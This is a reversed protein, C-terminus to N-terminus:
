SLSAPLKLLPRPWFKKTPEFSWPKFRRPTIENSRVAVTGAPEVIWLALRLSCIDLVVPSASVM